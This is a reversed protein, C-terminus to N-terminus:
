LILTSTNVLAQELQFLFIKGSYSLRFYSNYFEGDRWSDCQGDMFMRVNIGSDHHLSLQSYNGFVPLRQVQFGAVGDNLDDVFPMISFIFASFRGFDDNKIGVYFSFQYGNFFYIMFIVSGGM